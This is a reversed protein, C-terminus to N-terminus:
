GFLAKAQLSIKEKIKAYVFNDEGIALRFQKSICIYFLFSLFCILGELSIIIFLDAKSKTVTMNVFPMCFAAVVISTVGIPLLIKKAYGVFDVKILTHALVIYFLGSLLSAILKASAVSIIGYRDTFLLVIFWFIVAAVIASVYMAKLKVKATIIFSSADILPAFFFAGVLIQAVLISPIFKEGVWAMIFQPMLMLCVIVPIFVFPAVVSLHSLYFNRMGRDDNNIYYYSYKPFYQSSMISGFARLAIMLTAGIVYFALQEASIFRAIYIKDLEFYLIYMLTSFFSAKAFPWLLNLIPRSFRFGTMFAKLSYGWKRFFHLGMGITALLSILQTFFYYYVINKSENTTFIIFVLGINILSVLSQWAKVRYTEIRFQAIFSIIGRPINNFSFLALLVFLNRAIAETEENLGKIILAPHFAFVFMIIAFVFFAITQVFSASSLIEIEKKKDGRLFEDCGYKYAASLFGFDSYSLFMTFSLVAAFTGYVEISVAGTIKPTVIFISLFYAVFEAGSWLYNTIYKRKDSM